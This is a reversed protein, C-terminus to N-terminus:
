RMITAVAIGATATGWAWWTRPRWCVVGIAAYYAVGRPTELAVPDPALSAAALIADRTVDSAWSLLWVVGGGVAPLDFSAALALGQVISVPLLFVVTALPGVVSIRGFHHIQLPAIFVEVAVSVVFASAAGRACAHLARRWRSASTAPRLLAVPMREFCLLVALTAAFSLQLGVSLISQPAVLLMFLFAKGLADVPRPPRVLARAMLLLLAMAYARTLSDINGVVGVYISLALAVFADRRRPTWHTAAVALAAIMTLHMGSLALLHAIGLKRVAEYAPRDLLGREGLLLGVPLASEGGLARTLRTRAARHMPWLVDRMLPCGRVPGMRRVDGFRARAEGALGRAALFNAPTRSATAVRADVELVEGYNVDFCGARVLLRVGRGDVATAFVFTSGYRGSQPFESVRGTLRIRGGVAREAARAVARRDADAREIATWGAAACFAALAVAIWAAWSRVWAARASLLAVVLIVFSLSRYVGAVIAASFLWVM